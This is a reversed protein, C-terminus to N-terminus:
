IQHEDLRSRTGVQDRSPGEGPGPGIRARFTVILARGQESFAPPEIGYGKCAGIVQLIESQRETLDHVVHHPAIYGSPLFRVGVAGSEALFEPEPHGPRVCLDVIVQTDRGWQDDPSARNTM